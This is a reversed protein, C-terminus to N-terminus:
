KYKFSKLTNENVSLKITVILYKKLKKNDNFQVIRTQLNYIAIRNM